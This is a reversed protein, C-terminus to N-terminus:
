PMPAAPILATSDVVPLTAYVNVAGPSAPPMAPRPAAGVIIEPTTKSPAPSPWSNATEAASPLCSQDNLVAWSKVVLLLTGACPPAILVDPATTTSPMTYTADPYAIELPADPPFTNIAKPTS